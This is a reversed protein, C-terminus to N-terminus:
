WILSKQIKFTNTNSEVSAISRNSESSSIASFLLLSFILTVTITLYKM